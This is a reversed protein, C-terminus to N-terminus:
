RNVLVKVHFFTGSKELQSAMAVTRAIDVSLKSSLNLLSARRISILYLICISNFISYTDTVQLYTKMLKQSKFIALTILKYGPPM